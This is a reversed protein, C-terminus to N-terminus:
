SRAEEVQTPKRYPKKAKREKQPEGGEPDRRGAMGRKRKEEEKGANEVGETRRAGGDTGGRLKGNPGTEGM